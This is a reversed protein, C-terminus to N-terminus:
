QAPQYDSNEADFLGRVWYSHACAAEKEIAFDHM